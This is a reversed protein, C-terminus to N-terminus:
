SQFQNETSTPKGKVVELTFLDPDSLMAMVPASVVEDNNTTIATFQPLDDGCMLAMDDSPTVTLGLDDNSPPLM